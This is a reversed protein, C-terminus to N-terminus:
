YNFIVSSLSGLLQGWFVSERPNELRKKTKIYLVKNQNILIIFLLRTASAPAVPAFAGTKLFDHGQYKHGLFYFCPFLLLTYKFPIFINEYSLNGTHCRPVNADSFLQQIIYYEFRNTNRIIM